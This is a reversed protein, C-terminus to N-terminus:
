TDSIADGCGTFRVDSAAVTAPSSKWPNPWKENTKAGYHAPPTCARRRPIQTPQKGICCIPYGTPTSFAGADHLPPPGIGGEEAEAQGAGAAAAGRAQRGAAAGAPEGGVRGAPGRAEDARRLGAARAVVARVRPPGAASRHHDVAGEQRAADAEGLRGGVRRLPRGSGALAQGGMSM